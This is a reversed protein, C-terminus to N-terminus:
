SLSVVEDGTNEKRVAKFPVHRLPSIYEPYLWTQGVAYIMVLSCVYLMIHSLPHGEYGATSQDHKM